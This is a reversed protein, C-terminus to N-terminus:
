EGRLLFLRKVWRRRSNTYLKARYLDATQRLGYSYSPYPHITDAIASVRLDERMALAVEGIVESAHTSVISAGIIRGRKSVILTYFGTLSGDTVARDVETLEKRLVIHKDPDFAPDNRQIGVSAVAPNTYTIRPLVCDDRKQRAGLLAHAVAIRAHHNGLHTFYPPGIVDGVAYIHKKNTQQRQNVAITPKNRRIGAADLGIEETNPTRGTAILLEDAQVEQKKGDHELTALIQNKVQRVNQIKQQKLVTVGDTVLQREVLASAAPDERSLLSKGAEILTVSVGLKQFAQALECGIPGGGIILLSKMNTAQFITHNTRYNVKDIGSIKPITPRSGSAVIITQASLTRKGARLKHADLFRASEHITEIHLQRLKDASETAAVTHVTEQVHKLAAKIDPTKSPHKDAYALLSKSPVCGTHTCDGGLKDKEILVTKAGIGAASIAATLGAAGGGIVAVDYTYGSRNLRKVLLSSLVVYVGIGGVAILINTLSLSAIAEGLYVYTVTGPIIGLATGWIFDRLRVPSYALAFSLANYPVLPTLRLLLVTLFGNAEIRRNYRHVRELKNHLFGDVVEKGVARAIFFGVTAGITAGILSLVVGWFVGFVAGGIVTFITGPLFIASGIIYFLIFAGPALWGLSDIAEEWNALNDQAFIGSVRIAYLMGALGLIYAIFTIKQRKKM